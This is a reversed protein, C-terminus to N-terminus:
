ITLLLIVDFASSACFRLKLIGVTSELTFSSISRFITMSIPSYSDVPPRLAFRIPILGAYLYATIVVGVAYKYAPNIGIRKAKRGGTSEYEGIEIVMNRDILENVNSLVTPMSLSLNQALEAKSTIKNNVIYNVIKSKTINKKENRGAM